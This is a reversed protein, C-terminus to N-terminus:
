EQKFAQDLITVMSRPANDLVNVVSEISENLIGLIMSISEEFLPTQAISAAQENTLEQGDLYGGVITIKTYDKATTAKILKELEKAPTVIDEDTFLVAHEGFDLSKILSYKNNSLAIKFLNNKVIHFKSNYDFINKRFDNVENPTAGTIKVVVISTSKDILDSYKEVLKKKQVRTKAM